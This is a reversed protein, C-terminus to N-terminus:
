IRRQVRCRIINCVNLCDAIGSLDDVLSRCIRHAGKCAVATDAGAHIGKSSLSDPIDVIIFLIPVVIGFEAFKVLFRVITCHDLVIKSILSPCILYFAEARYETFHM